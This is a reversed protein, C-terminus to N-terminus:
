NMLNKTITILNKVRINCNEANWAMAFPLHLTEGKIPRYCVGQRASKAMSQIVFGIGSGASVLGILGISTEVTQLIRPSFGARNCLTLIKDFFVPGIDRRVLIFNEQQLASLEITPMKALPHHEPLAIVLPEAKMQIFSLNKHRLPPHIIGVDLYQRVLQEEVDHSLLESYSIVTKPFDQQYANLFNPVYGFFSVPTYGLRLFGEEGRAIMKATEQTKRVHHLLSEAHPLFNAGDRTIEVGHKSRKLLLFGLEDELRSIRTSLAPQSMNMANAAKRFSGSTVIEVFGQVSKLNLM